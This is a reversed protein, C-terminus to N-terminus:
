ILSWTPELSLDELSRIPPKDGLLTEICAQTSKALSVPNYGGELTMVIKGRAFELLKYLMISYGYTSLCCGGIPDGIAADFGASIIIMDSEFERAVPILIHDWVAFYDADGVGGNEWPVNINYGAGLGEGMMDYSGDNGEPYFRGSDHRHVSFVLVRPDRYFIKQTSNGHHVDWDVILIKNIGLEPKENLIVSTAIAVNNFLCFGMPQAEEAHHGPPSVIAFASDLEGKAVQETAEIVFGAALYAAESSGENFYISNYKNARKRMAKLNKSSITKILDIHEKSHVLALHDDEAEKANLIVCRQLLGSANLNNWIARIRKPNEPHNGGPQKHKCMREDFLLGVRRRESPNKQAKGM